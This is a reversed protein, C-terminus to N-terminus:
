SSVIHKGTFIAMLGIRNLVSQNPVLLALLTVLAALMKHKAILTMLLGGCQLLSYTNDQVRKALRRTTKEALEEPYRTGWGRRPHALSSFGYVLRSKTIMDLCYVTILPPM